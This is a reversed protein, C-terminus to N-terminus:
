KNPNLIETIPKGWLYMTENYVVTGELSAILVSKLNDYEEFGYGEKKLRHKKLYDKVNDM